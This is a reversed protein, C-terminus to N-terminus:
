CTNEPQCTNKIKIGLSCPNLLFSRGFFLFHTLTYYHNFAALPWKTYSKSYLGASIYTIVAAYYKSPSLFTRIFTSLAQSLSLPPSLTPPLPLLLTHAHARMLKDRIQAETMQFLELFKSSIKANFSLFKATPFSLFM